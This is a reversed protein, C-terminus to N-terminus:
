LSFPLTLPSPSFLKLLLIVSVNTTGAPLSTHVAPERIGHTKIVGDASPEGNGQTEEMNPKQPCSGIIGPPIGLNSTPCLGQTVFDRPLLLFQLFFVLHCCFFLVLCILGPFGCYCFSSQTSQKSKQHSGGNRLYLLFSKFFKGVQLKLKGFATTKELTLPWKQVLLICSVIKKM